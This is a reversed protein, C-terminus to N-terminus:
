PGSVRNRVAAASALQSIVSASGGRGAMGRIGARVARISAARSWRHRGAPYRRALWRPVLGRSDQSPRVLTLRAPILRVPYSPSRSLGSRAQQRSPGAPLRITVQTGEGPTSTIGLEGKHAWTLEAVVALGIGSGAVEGANSGRWFRESLHPLDEPAVGVGTDTVTLVAHGDEPGAALTVRGGAPTFKVANSLLNTIVQHMRREDALVPAAALKRELTIDAIDFRSGMSDAAADAIDALDGPAVELQLAAAEASALTQLDDVMRILRVVEDRLSSLQAPTPEIVGDLLAEHGAQLVAVPTRLEHAVDAVLNRRLQEQRALTDAMEDFTSALERLEAPGRIQGVRADSSGGGRERVVEILRTVPRTIRASIGLAVLLALLAAVGASGAVAQWLDGRLTRHPGGLGNEGFRVQVAGVQRGEARVAAGTALGEGRGYGPSAVVLGGSQDTVRVQAGVQAALDVVPTLEAGAWSDKRDWAASAAAQMAQTLESRQRTALHSVDEAEFIAALGAVLAIAMLAVGIFALALRQALPSAGTAVEPM